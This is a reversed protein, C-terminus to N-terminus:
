NAAAAAPPAYTAGKKSDLASKATAVLAALAPADFIAMDSLVKRDLDIGAVKLGEMFRSYSLGLPRTGANIRQIWLRRFNRQRQKRHAFSYAMAKYLAQKAYRYHSKRFGRFGKTQKLVRKRRARSAPANTSRPM